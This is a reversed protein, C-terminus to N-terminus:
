ENIDMPPLYPEEDDESREDDEGVPLDYNDLYDFHWGPCVIRTIASSLNLVYYM